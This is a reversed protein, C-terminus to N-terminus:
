PGGENRPVFQETGFLTRESASPDHLKRLQRQMDTHPICFARLYSVM